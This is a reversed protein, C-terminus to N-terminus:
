VRLFASAVMRRALRQEEAAAAEQRVAVPAYGEALKRWSQAAGALVRVLAVAAEGDALALPLTQALVIEDDASVALQAGATNRGMFNAHLMARRFRDAGREPMRGATCRFAVLGRAANERLTVEVGDVTVRCAGTEDPALAPNGFAAGCIKALEQFEM